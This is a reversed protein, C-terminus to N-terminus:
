SSAPEKIKLTGASSTYVHNRSSFLYFRLKYWADADRFTSSIPSPVKGQAM